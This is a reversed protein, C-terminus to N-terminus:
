RARRAVVCWRGDVKAYGIQWGLVTETVWAEVGIGMVHLKDEFDRIAENLADTDVNLEEVAKELQDLKEKIM